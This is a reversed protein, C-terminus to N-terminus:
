EEEDFVDELIRRTKRDFEINCEEFKGDDEMIYGNRECFVIIMDHEFDPNEKIIASFYDEDASLKDIDTLTGDKFYSYKVDDLVARGNEDRRLLVYKVEKVKDRFKKADEPTICFYASENPVVFDGNDTDLIVWEWKSTLVLKGVCYTDQKIQGTEDDFWYLQEDPLCPPPNNKVFELFENSKNM